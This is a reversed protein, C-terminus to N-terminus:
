MIQVKGPGFQLDCANQIKTKNAQNVNVIFTIQLVGGATYVWTFWKSWDDTISLQAVVMSITLNKRRNEDLVSQLLSLDVIPNHRSCKTEVSVLTHIRVSPDVTDDWEYTVRCSCTDPGWTTRQMTM